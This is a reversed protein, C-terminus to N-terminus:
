PQGNTYLQFFNKAISNKLSSSQQSYAQFAIFGALNIINNELPGSDTTEVIQGSGLTKSLNKLLLLDTQIKM